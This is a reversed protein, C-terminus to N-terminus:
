LCGGGKSILFGRVLEELAAPRLSPLAGLNSGEMRGSPLPQERGGQCPITLSLIYPLLGSRLQSEQPAPGPVEGSRWM